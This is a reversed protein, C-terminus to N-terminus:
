VVTGAAPKVLKGSEIFGHLSSCPYSRVGKGLVTGPNTVSNCGLQTNDGVVAGLKKRGTPISLGECRVQVEQHDLKLNACKTGAGLNVNNGLVTDGLYSFHAASAGNLLISNKVETAHGIVVNDGTLVSGRLYAGHRITCNNGIVCPGRIFAGQEIVTGEGIFIFEENEFFTGRPVDRGKKSYDWNALYEALNNLAFWVPKSQQFLNKHSFTSLDFFYEINPFNM